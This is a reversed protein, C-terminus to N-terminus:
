SSAAGTRRSTAPTKSCRRWQSLQDMQELTEEGLLDQIKDDDLNAFDNWDRVDKLQKELDDYDNLRDM